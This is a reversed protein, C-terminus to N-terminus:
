DNDNESDYKTEIEEIADLKSAPDTMDDMTSGDGEDIEVQSFEGGQKGELIASVM